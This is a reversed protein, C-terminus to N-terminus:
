PRADSVSTGADATAGVGEGADCGLSVLAVGAEGLSVALRLDQRALRVAPASLELRALETPAAPDAVDFIVLSGSAMAVVATFRGVLEVDSVAEPLVVQGTRVPRGDEIDVIGLGAGTEGLALRLPQGVGDVATVRGETPIDLGALVSPREVEQWDVVTLGALGDAVYARRGRLVIEHARGPTDVRSIRRPGDDFRMLWAGKSYMAGFLVGGAGTRLGRADDVTVVPDTPEGTVADISRVGEGAVSVFLRGDAHTLATVAGNTAGSGDLQPATPDALTWREWGAGTGLFLREGVIVADSVATDATLLVDRTLSVAGRAPVCMGSECRDVTCPDGDDCGDDSTCLIEADAGGDLGGDTPTDGGDVTGDAPEASSSECGFALGTVLACGLLWRLRSCGPAHRAARSPASSRHVRFM